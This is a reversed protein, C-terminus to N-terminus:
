RPEGQPQEAAAAAPIDLTLRRVDDGAAAILIGRAPGVRGDRPRFRLAIADADAAADALPDRLPGADVAPHFELRAAGPVALTLTDGSWAAAVEDPFAPRPLEARARELRPAHDGSGPRAAVPVAFVLTSDGPVCGERCALWSLRATVAAVDGPAAHAPARLSQLLILEDEYVHDLIGGPAELRRGAPWRLPGAEWGAPLELTVGPPLGTDNRGATYLHWGAALEFRWGLELEGGPAVADAATLVSITVARPPVTGTRCGLILCAALACFWPIRRAM